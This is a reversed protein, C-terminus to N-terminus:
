NEKRWITLRANGRNITGIMNLIAYDTPNLGKSWDISVNTLKGGIAYQGQMRAYGVTGADGYDLRYKQAPQGNIRLWFYAVSNEINLPASFSGVSEGFRDPPALTIEIAANEAFTATNM